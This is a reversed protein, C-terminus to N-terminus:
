EQGQKEVRSLRKPSWPFVLLYRPQFLGSEMVKIWIRDHPSPNRTASHYLVWKGIYSVQTQDRLWSSGRPYSIAVLELRRAQLIGHVSSGPPSCDLPWLSNSMVKHSFLLRTLVRDKKGISRSLTKMYSCDTIKWLDDANKPFLLLWEWLGQIFHKILWNWQGKRDEIM